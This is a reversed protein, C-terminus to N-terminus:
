QETVQDDHLEPVVSLPACFQYTGINSGGFFVTAAILAMSSWKAARCPEALGAPQATASRRWSRYIALLRTNQRPSRLSLPDCEHQDGRYYFSDAMPWAPALLDNIADLIM